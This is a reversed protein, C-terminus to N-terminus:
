KWALGDATKSQAAADQSLKIGLAMGGLLMGLAVVVLLIGAATLSVPRPPSGGLEAPATWNGVLKAFEADADMM